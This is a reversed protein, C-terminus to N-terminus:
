PSFCVYKYINKKRTDIKQPTGSHQLKFYCRYECQFVSKKKKLLRIMTVLRSSLRASIGFLDRYVVINNYEPPCIVVTYMCSENARVDKRRSLYNRRRTVRAGEGRAILIIFHRKGGLPRAYLRPPIIPGSRTTYFSQDSLLITFGPRGGLGPGLTARWFIYSTM